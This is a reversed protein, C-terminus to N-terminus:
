YFDSVNLGFIDLLTSDRVTFYMGNRFFLDFSNIAVAFSASGGDRYEINLFCPSPCNVSGISFDASNMLADLKRLAAENEIGVSGNQWEMTARIAERNLFDVEGPRYGLAAEAWDFLHDYGPGAEYLRLPAETVVGNKGSTSVVLEYSREGDILYLGIPIRTFHILEEEELYRSGLLDEPVDMDMYFSSPQDTAGQRWSEYNHLPICLQPQREDRISFGMQAGYILKARQQPDACDFIVSGSAAFPSYQASADNTVIVIHKLADYARIQIGDALIFDYYINGADDEARFVSSFFSGGFSSVHVDAPLEPASEKRVGAIYRDYRSDSRAIFDYDDGLKELIFDPTQGDSFHADPLTEELWLAYERATEAHATCIVCVLALLLCGIKRM